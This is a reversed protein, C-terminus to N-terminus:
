RNQNGNEVVEQEKKQEILKALEENLVDSNGQIVAYKKSLETEDVIPTSINTTYYREELIVDADYFCYGNEATLEAYKTFKGKIEITIHEMLGGNLYLGNKVQQM